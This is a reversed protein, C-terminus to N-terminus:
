IHLRQLSAICYSVNIKKSFTAILSGEPIFSGCGRTRYTFCASKISHSLVVHEGNLTCAQMWTNNFIQALELVLFWLMCSDAARGVLLKTIRGLCKFHNSQWKALRWHEKRKHMAAYM